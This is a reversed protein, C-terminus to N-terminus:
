VPSKAGPRGSLCCDKPCVDHGAPYQGIAPRDDSLAREQIMESIMRVFTPHAGVTAARAMEIGHQQCVEKAEVDLDFMVEMHDSLFGVPVIVLSEIDETAMSEIRDCVDPELWPQTPPGSRSQFVLEWSEYGLSEAVLRSTERLQKEYNCNTAMAEPISHATFLLKAGDRNAETLQDIADKVRDAIAEVFKPHNYCMRVKEVSPAGEGVSQQANFINERYQRCGSYCSYASTFFAVANEVGDEKMQQLTDELMPHWNRNGFYIPLDIGLQGFDKELAAILQRNQENIPSIGDFQQYHHSVEIMRAEPVNRGQLVNKLFPMVDDMGEPGGFSVLLVAQYKERIESM